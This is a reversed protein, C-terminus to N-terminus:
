SSWPLGHYCNRLVITSTYIAPVVEVATQGAPVGRAWFGGRYTGPVCEATTVGTYATAWTEYNGSVPEWKYSGRGFAELRQIQFVTYMSVPETSCSVVAKATIVPTGAPMGLSFTELTCNSILSNCGGCGLAIGGGLVVACLVSCVKKMGMMMDM